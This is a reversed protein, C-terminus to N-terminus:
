LLSDEGRCQRRHLGRGKGKFIKAFRGYLSDEPAGFGLNMKVDAAMVGPISVLAAIVPAAVFKLITRKM